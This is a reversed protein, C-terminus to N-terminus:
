HNLDVVRYEGVNLDDVCFEGFSARHLEIVKNKTAAFMRKVQHYRGEFIELLVVNPTIVKLNASMCPTKEGNLMLEGSAFIDAEDGKLPESLTAQYVKSIHKKPSTLSHNLDGDDTLLIAGTTDIDLRGVTAIKPNRRQWRDPLLSYILKGGDDHSCIFGSPKNLLITLNEPDLPEGDVTVEHHFVKLSLDFVRIKNVCVENDKIFFKASRRSCYGLNSLLADLRKKQM